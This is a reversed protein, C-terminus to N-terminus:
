MSIKLKSVVYARAIWGHQEPLVAARKKGSYPVAVEMTVSGTQTSSRAALLDSVTQPCSSSKELSSVEVRAGDASSTEMVSEPDEDNEPAYARLVM